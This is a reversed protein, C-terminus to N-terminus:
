AGEPANKLSARILERLEPGDQQPMSGFRYFETLKGGLVREYFRFAEECTGPYNLYIELKM